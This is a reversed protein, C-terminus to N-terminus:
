QKKLYSEMWKNMEDKKKWLDEVWKKNALYWEVTV